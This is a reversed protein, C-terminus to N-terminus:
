SFVVCGARYRWEEDTDVVLFPARVEDSSRVFIGLEAESLSLDVTAIRDAMLRCAAVEILDGESSTLLSGVGVERLMAFRGDAFVRHGCAVLLSGNIEVMRSRPAESISTVEAAVVGHLQPSYARVVHGVEIEAALVPGGPTLVQASSAIGRSARTRTLSLHYNVRSVMRTMKDWDAV